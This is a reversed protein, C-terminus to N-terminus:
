DVATAASIAGLFGIVLASLLLLLLMGVTPLRGDAITLFGGGGVFVLLASTLFTNRLFRLQENDQANAYRQRKAAINTLSEEPSLSEESDDESGASEASPGALESRPETQGTEPDCFLTYVDTAPDRRFLAGCAPCTMRDTPVDDVFELVIQCDPCRLQLM